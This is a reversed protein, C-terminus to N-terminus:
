IKKDLDKLEADVEKKVVNLDESIKQRADGRELEKKIKAIGHALSEEVERAERRLKKRFMRFKHWYYYTLMTLIAIIILVLLLLGGVNSIWVFFKWFLSNVSMYVPNSDGSQLGTSLTQKATIRYSGSSLAESYEASWRGDSDSKASLALPQNKGLTLDVEVDADPLATGKILLKQGPSVLRAPYDTIAPPEISEITVQIQAYTANGAKDLARVIIVKVGPKQKTLLFAGSGDVLQDTKIWAADEGVKIEYHDIGSLSDKTKFSIQDPSRKGASDLEGKAYTINFKDPPTLDVFLPYHLIPGAGTGNIFRLHYYHRGEELFNFTKGDFLGGSKAPVATDPNGDFVDAVGSVGIPVSWALKAYSGNSWKIGNDSSNFLVSEGDPNKVYHKLLPKPPLPGESVPATSRQLTYTGGSMGTLINTGQGDNALISGSQFNASGSGETRVQFTIDLIKGDGTFGPNLVVGEFHLNGTSGSNSYSPEQVWLNFISGAKSLGIVQLKDTPFNLVGDAANMAQGSTNVRISVTFNKGTSYTGSGPSLYLTAAEARLVGFFVLFLASISM